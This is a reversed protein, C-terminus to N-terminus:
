FIVIGNIRQAPDHCDHCEVRNRVPVVTRLISGGRTEIVRSSTREAPPFRHCAQCTPAQLSLENGSAVPGSSYRVVGKRDLLMVAAVGPEKGFSRVMGDILTRDRTLMEHELATRILEAQALATGRAGDLLTQYHRRSYLYAGAACAAIVALTIGAALAATTSGLRPKM